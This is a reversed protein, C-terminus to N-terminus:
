VVNRKLFVHGIRGMVLALGSMVAVSVAGIGTPEGMAAYGLLGGGTASGAVGVGHVVKQTVPMVKKAFLIIKEKAQRCKKVTWQASKSILFAEDAIQVSEKAAAKAAVKSKIKVTGALKKLRKPKMEPTTGFHISTNSGLRM